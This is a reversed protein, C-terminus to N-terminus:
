RVRGKWNARNSKSTNCAHCLPQMNGIDNTGGHGYHVIHDMELNEWPMEQRCVACRSHHQKCLREWEIATFSGIVGARKAASVHAEIRRCIKCVKSGPTYAWQADRKQNCRTCTKM